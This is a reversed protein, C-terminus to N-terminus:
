GTQELIKLFEEETIQRTGLEQARALKSGPDAGVVLYTTGRNVNEKAIGGLAKIRSEAEQRSFNGLRGTIVFEQGALPSEEPKVMAERPNIGADKLRLVASLILINGLSTLRCRGSWCRMMLLVPCIFEIKLHFSILMNALLFPISGTM